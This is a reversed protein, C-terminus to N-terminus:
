CTFSSSVPDGSSGILGYPSYSYFCCTNLLRPLLGDRAWCLPSLVGSKRRVTRGQPGQVLSLDRIRIARHVYTM